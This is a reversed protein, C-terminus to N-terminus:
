TQNLRTWEQLSAINSSPFTVPLTSTSSNSSMIKRSKQIPFYNSYDHNTSTSFNYLLSEEEEVIIIIVVLVVVTSSTISILICYDAGGWQGVVVTM